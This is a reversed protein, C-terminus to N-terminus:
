YYDCHRPGALPLPQATEWQALMQYSYGVRALTAGQLARTALTLEILLRPSNCLHHTNCLFYNANLRVSGFVRMSGNCSSTKTISYTNCNIGAYTSNIPQQLRTGGVQVTRKPQM